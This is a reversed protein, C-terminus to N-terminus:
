LYVEAEQSDIEVEECDCFDYIVGEDDFIEKIENISFNNAEMVYCNRARKYERIAFKRAAERTSFYFTNLYNDLGNPIKIMVIYIVKM